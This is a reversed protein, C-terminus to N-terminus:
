GKGTKDVFVVLLYEVLYEMREVCPQAFKSAGGGFLGLGYELQQLEDLIDRGVGRLVIIYKAEYVFIQNGVKGGIGALFRSLKICRM